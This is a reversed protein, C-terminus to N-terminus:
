YFEELLDIKFCWGVEGQVQDNVVVCRVLMRLYLSPELPVRSKVNM